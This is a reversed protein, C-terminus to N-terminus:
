AELSAQQKHKLCVGDLFRDSLSTRLYFIQKWTGGALQHQLAHPLKLLLPLDVTDEPPTILIGPIVGELSNIGKYTVTM